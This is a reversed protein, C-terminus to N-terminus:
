CNVFHVYTNNCSALSFFASLDVLSCALFLIFYKCKYIHDLYSLLLSHRITNRTIFNLIKYKSFDFTNTNSQLINQFHYSWLICQYHLRKPRKCVNLAILIILLVYVYRYSKLTFTCSLITSPCDNSVRVHGNCILVLWWPDICKFIVRSYTSFQGIYLSNHM